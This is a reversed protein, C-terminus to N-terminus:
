FVTFVVILTHRKNFSWVRSLFAHAKPSTHVDDTGDDYKDHLEAGHYTDGIKMDAIAKVTEETPRFLIMTNVTGVASREVCISEAVLKLPKTSVTTM